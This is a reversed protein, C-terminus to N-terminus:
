AAEVVVATLAVQPGVTQALVLVAVQPAELFHVVLLDVVVTTVAMVMLAVVQAVLALLLQQFLLLAKLAV